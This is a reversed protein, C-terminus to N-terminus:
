CFCIQFGNDYKPIDDGTASPTLFFVNDEQSLKSYELGPATTVTGLSLQMGGELMTAYNAAVKSADHTDDTAVLKFKVGNLGGAANIEDVAMQASNNVAVGYVAAGGTLPGSFGLVFETNESTYSSGTSGCAVLGFVMAMAMMSAFVKKLVAKM